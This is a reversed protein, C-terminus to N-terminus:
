EGEFNAHDYAASNDVPNVINQRAAVISKLTNILGDAIATPAMASGNDSAYIEVTQKTKRFIDDAARYMNEFELTIGGYKNDISAVMAPKPDYWECTHIAGLYGHANREHERVLKASAPYTVGPVKSVTAGLDYKNNSAWGAAQPNMYFVNADFRVKAVPNETDDALDDDYQMAVLKLEAGNVEVNVRARKTQRSITNAFAAAITEPTDGIKTYYDYSESWKRYRTPMDKYTLRVVIAIGGNALLDKTEDGITSFDITVTDETDDKYTLGTISKIDAAKIENSWKVVPVYVTANTTKNFKTFYDKTVVGIKFTDVDASPTYIDTLPTGDQKAPDCNMFAFKGVLANVAEKSAVGEMESSSVLTAGNKNSVLVTNVYTIM